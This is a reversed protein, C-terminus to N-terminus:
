GNEKEKRLGMREAQLQLEERTFGAKDYFYGFLIGLFIAIIVVPIIFIDFRQLGHKDLFLSLIMSFSFLSIIIAYYGM